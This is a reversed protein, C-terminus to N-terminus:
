LHACEPHCLNFPKDSASSFEPVYHLKVRQSKVRQKRPSSICHFYCYYKHGSPNRKQVPVALVLMGGGGLSLFFLFASGMSPATESTLCSIGHFSFFFFLCPILKM